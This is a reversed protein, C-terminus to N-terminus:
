KNPANVIVSKLCNLLFRKVSLDCSGELFFCIKISSIIYFSIVALFRIKSGLQSETSVKDTQGVKSSLENTSIPFPSSFHGDRRGRLSTFNRSRGMYCRATRLVTNPRGVRVDLPHGEAWGIVARLVLKDTGMQHVLSM